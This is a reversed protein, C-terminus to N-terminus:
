GRLRPARVRLLVPAEARHRRARGRYNGRGGGCDDVVEGRRAAAIVGVPWADRVGREHRQAPSTEPGSATRTATGPPKTASASPATVPISDLGCGPCAQISYCRRASLRGDVAPPQRGLVPPPRSPGSGPLAGGSRNDVNGRGRKDVSICP